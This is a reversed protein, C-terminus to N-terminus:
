PELGICGLCLITANRYVRVPQGAGVGYLTSSLGLLLIILFVALWLRPSPPSV